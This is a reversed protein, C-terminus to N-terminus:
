CQLACSDREREDNRSGAAQFQHTLRWVSAAKDKFMNRDKSRQWFHTWEAPEDHERTDKGDKSMTAKTENTKHQQSESSSTSKVECGLVCVCM